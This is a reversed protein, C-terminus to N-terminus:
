KGQSMYVTSAWHTNALLQGLWAAEAESRRGSLGTM